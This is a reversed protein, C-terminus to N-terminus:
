RKRYSEICFRRLPDEYNTKFVAYFNSVIYSIARCSYIKLCTTDLHTSM